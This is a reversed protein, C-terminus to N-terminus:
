KCKEDELKRLKSKFWGLSIMMGTLEPGYRQIRNRDLMQARTLAVLNGPAFNEKDGDDFNVITGDPIDGHHLEYVIDKVPRWKEIRTGTKSVKRMLMADKDYKEYGVPHENNSNGHGRKFRTTHSRGGSDWGKMGKNWPVQGKKFNGGNEGAKYRARKAIDAYEPDREFGMAKVKQYISSTGRGLAEACESISQTRWMVKLRAVEESTFRRAKSM